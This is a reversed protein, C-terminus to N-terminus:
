AKIEEEVEQQWCGVYNLMGEKILSEPYGQEIFWQVMNEPAPDPLPKPFGYRWGSPPDVYTVKPM